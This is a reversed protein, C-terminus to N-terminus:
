KRLDTNRDQPFSDARVVRILILLSSDAADIGRRPPIPNSPM